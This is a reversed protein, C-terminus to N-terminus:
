IVLSAAGPAHQLDPQGPQEAALGRAGGPPQLRQMLRQHCGFPGLGHDAPELGTPGSVLDKGPQGAAFQVQRMGREVSDSVQVAVGGAVDSRQEGGQAGQGSAVGVQGAEFAVAAM